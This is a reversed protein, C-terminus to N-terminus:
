HFAEPGQLSSDMLARCGNYPLRVRDSRNAPVSGALCSASFFTSGDVCPLVERSWEAHVLRRGRGCWGVKAIWYLQRRVVRNKAFEKLARRDAHGEEGQVFAKQADVGREAPHHTVGVFFEPLAGGLVDSEGVVDLGAPLQGLAEQVSRRAVGAVLTVDVLVPCDKPHAAGRADDQVLLALRLMKEQHYFVNGLAFGALGREFFAPALQLRGEIRVLKDHVIRLVDDAGYAVITPEEAKIRRTLM